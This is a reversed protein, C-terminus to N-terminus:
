IEAELTARSQLLDIVMSLDIQVFGVDSLLMAWNEILRCCISNAVPVIVPVNAAAGAAMMTAIISHRLLNDVAGRM